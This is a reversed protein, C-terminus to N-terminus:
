LKMLNYLCNIGGVVVVLAIIRIIIFPLTTNYQNLIDALFQRTTKLFSFLIRNMSLTSILPM